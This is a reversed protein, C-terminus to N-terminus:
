KRFFVHNKLITHKRACKDDDKFIREWFFESDAKFHYIVIIWRM